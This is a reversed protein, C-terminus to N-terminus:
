FTFFEGANSSTFGTPAGPDLFVFQAFGSSTSGTGGSLTQRFSGNGDTVIPVTFVAPNPVLTGFAPFNIPNNTTGILAAGPVTAPADDIRFESTEGPRILGVIEFRPVMGNGGVTGFGLDTFVPFQSVIRRLVGNSYCLYIEGLADQGFSTLGFTASITTEQVFETRAGGVVRFSWVKGSCYDGFFYKGRLSPIEDGQYVVGGTVSCEPVSFSNPYNHIPDTLLPSNCPPLGGITSCGSTSFCLTGEMIKWGYNEGGTSSAPQFDIEEQANQGVDGMYLDGTMPDFAFRWPNRVGLAWITDLTSADGVFPNSAPASAPTTSVDLRHIKGLPNLRNQSRCGPDGGSGGDGLGYYLYGDPGFQICGGNHNSFPQGIPGFVIQNSNFLAVDPNSPSVSYREVISAGDGSRTYSVYFLGTTDHDPPFALGLLGREGGSLIRSSINLFPSPLLSGNKIVRITGSQQVAFIRSPDGPVHTAFLLGSLGSAVVETTIQAPQAALNTPLTSFVALALLATSVPVRMSDSLLHPPPAATAEGYWSVGTRRAPALVTSEPSAM